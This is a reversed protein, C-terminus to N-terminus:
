ADSKALLSQEVYDAIRAAATRHGVHEAYIRLRGDEILTGSLVTDGRTRTVPASEGTMSAENVSAEGGLVTGDIPIVTGTAVIVTDGVEVDIAATLVESGDREVWVEDSVPNILHKLLEESRRAISEELYEGLALMFTTTNAALYDRRALSISVALAELGHSTLGNQRLDALAHTLLPTAAATTVPLKLNEPLLPTGILTLLSTAVAEPTADTAGSRATSLVKPPPLALLKEALRGPDTLHEDFEVILSRVQGNVRADVVGALNRAALAIDKDDHAVGPHCRYRWRVRSATQHVADLQAFWRGATM